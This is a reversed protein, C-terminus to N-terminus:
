VIFKLTTKSYLFIRCFFYVLIFPFFSFLYSLIYWNMTYCIDFHFIHCGKLFLVLISSVGRLEGETEGDRMLSWGNCVVVGYFIWLFTNSCFGILSCLATNEIQRLTLWLPISWKYYMYDIWRLSAICLSVCLFPNYQVKKSM